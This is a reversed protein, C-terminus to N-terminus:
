SALPVFLEICLLDTGCKMEKPQLGHNGAYIIPTWVPLCSALLIPHESRAKANEETLTRKPNTLM